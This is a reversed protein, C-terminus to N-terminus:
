ISKELRVVPTLILDFNVTVEDGVTITGMMATPKEMKFDSMRIKKSVTFELDGNDLVIGKATLTISNTTGAMSLSGTAELTAVNSADLTIKASAFTYTIEPYQDLKFADYTKNDMIRGKTSKIGKVQIRIVTSKVAKLVGGQQLFSGTCDIKTLDSEWDHLSSTGQISGRSTKLTFTTQAFTTLTVVIAACAITLKITYGFKM